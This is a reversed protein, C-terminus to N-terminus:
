HITLRKADPDAPDMNPDLRLDAVLWRKVCTFFELREQDSLKLRDALRRMDDRYAIDTLYMVQGKSILGNKEAVDAIVRGAKDIRGASCLFPAQISEFGPFVVQCLTLIAGDFNHALISLVVAGTHGRAAALVRGQWAERLQRAEKSVNVDLLAEV